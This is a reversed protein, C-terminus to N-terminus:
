TEEGPWDNLVKRLLSLDAGAAIQDAVRLTAVVHICWPTRLDTLAELTM